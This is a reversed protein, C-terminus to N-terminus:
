CGWCRPESGPRAATCSKYGCRPRRGDGSGRLAAPIGCSPSSRSMRLASCGSTCLPRLPKQLSSLARKATRQKRPHVINGTIIVVCCHPGRPRSLSEQIPHPRRSPPPPFLQLATRSPATPCQQGRHGGQLGGGHETNAAKQVDNCDWSWLTTPTGVLTFPCPESCSISVHTDGNM